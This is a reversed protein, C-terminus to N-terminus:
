EAEPGHLFFLCTSGEADQEARSDTEGLLSAHRLKAPTKAREGKDFRATRADPFNEAELRPAPRPSKGSRTSSRCSHERKLPRENTLRRVIGGWLFVARTHEESCCYM